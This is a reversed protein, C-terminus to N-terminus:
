LLCSVRFNRKNQKMGNGSGGTSSNSTVTNNAELNGVSTGNVYLSYTKGKEINVNSIIIMSYSKKTKFSKVTNGSSDKLVVEDGSNGSTQFSLSYQTSNSSPNQSM